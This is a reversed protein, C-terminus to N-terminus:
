NGQIQGLEILAGDSSIKPLSSVNEPGLPNLGNYSTMRFYKNLSVQGMARRMAPVVHRDSGPTSEGVSILHWTYGSSSVDQVDLGHAQFWSRAQDFSLDRESCVDMFQRCSSIIESESRGEQRFERGGGTASAPRREALNSSESPLFRRLAEMNEKSVQGGAELRRVLEAALHNTAENEASNEPGPRGAGYGERNM